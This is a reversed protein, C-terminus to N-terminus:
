QEELVKLGCERIHFYINRGCGSCRSTRGPPRSPVKEIITVGKCGNHVGKGTYFVPQQQQKPRALTGNRRAGRGTSRCGRLM